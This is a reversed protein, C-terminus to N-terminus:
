ICVLERVYSDLDNFYKEWIFHELVRARSKQIYNERETDSEMLHQLHLTLRDIDGPEFLLGCNGNDLQYEIHGSTASVISGGFFMAELISTPIGEFRSPLCYISTSRYRRYLSEGQLAPFFQIRQELGYTSVLSRLSKHYDSNTVPGRIELKWDPFLASLRNFAEILHHINKRETIQGAYLIVLERHPHFGIDRWLQEIEELDKKWFCIPIFFTKPERIHGRIHEYSLPTEAIIADAYKLILGYRLKLQIESFRGKLDWDSLYTYSDLVIVYRNKFLIKSLMLSFCHWYWVWSFVVEKDRKKLFYIIFNLMKHKKNVGGVKILPVKEWIMKLDVNERLDLSEIRVSWGTNLFGKCIQYPARMPGTEDFYPVAYVITRLKNV